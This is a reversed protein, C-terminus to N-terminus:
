NSLSIQLKCAVLWDISTKWMGTFEFPFSVVRDTSPTRTSILTRTVRLNTDRFRTFPRRSKLHWQALWRGGTACGRAFRHSLFANYKYRCVEESVSSAPHIVRARSTTARFGRHSARMRMTHRRVWTLLKGGEAWQGKTITLVISNARYFWLSDIFM